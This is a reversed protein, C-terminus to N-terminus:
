LDILEGSTTHGWNVENTQYIWFCKRSVNLGLCSPQWKASLMKSICKRSHFHKFKWNINWKLKNGLTWNVIYWYQNPYHSPASFAVFGNPLTELRTSNYRPAIYWSIVYLLLFVSAFYLDSKSIVYSMGYRAMLPSSYPIQQSSKAALQDCKLPVM